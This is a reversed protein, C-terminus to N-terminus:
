YHKLTGGNAPDLGIGSNVNIDGDLVSANLVSLDTNPGDIAGSLGQGTAGSITLGQQPSNATTRYLYENDTAIGGRLEIDAKGDEMHLQGVPGTLDSSPDYANNNMNCNEFAIEAASSNRQLWVPGTNVFFNANRFTIMEIDEGAITYVSNRVEVAPGANSAFTVNDYASSHDFHEYLVGGTGNRGFICRDFLNQSHHNGSEAQETGAYRLGWGDNIFSYVQNFYNFYAKNLVLGDGACRNIRLRELRNMVSGRRPNLYPNKEVEGRFLIGDGAYNGKNGELKLDYLEAYNIVSILPGDFGKKFTYQDTPASSLAASGYITTGTQIELTDTLKWQAGPEIVFTAAGRANSVKERVTAEDMGDRLVTLGSISDATLDTVDLRNVPKSEGLYEGGHDHGEDAFPDGDDDRASATGGVGLLASGGLLGGLAQRRTLPFGRDRRRELAAKLKENETELDNMRQEIQRHWEQPPQDSASM